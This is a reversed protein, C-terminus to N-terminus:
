IYRASRLQKMGFRGKRRPSKTRRLEEAVDFMDNKEVVTTREIEIIETKNTREARFSFCGLSTWTRGVGTLLM